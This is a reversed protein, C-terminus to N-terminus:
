QIPKAKRWAGLPTQQCQNDYDKDESDYREHEL